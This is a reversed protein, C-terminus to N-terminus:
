VAPAYRLGRKGKAADTPSESRGRREGKGGEEGEKEEHRSSSRENGM